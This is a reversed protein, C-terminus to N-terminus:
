RLDGTEFRLGVTGDATTVNPGLDRFTATRRDSTRAQVTSNQFLPYYGIFVRRADPRVACGCDLGGELGANVTIRLLDQSANTILPAFYDADTGRADASRLLTGSAGRLVVSGRLESGMPRGNVSLPRVLEWQAVLAKGRPLSRRITEGPGLTLPGDEGSVLRVPAALHNIFVLRPRTLVYWGVGAALLLGMVTLGMARYPGRAAPTRRFPARAPPDAQSSPPGTM